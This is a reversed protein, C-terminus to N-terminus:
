RLRLLKTSLSLGPARVHAVYLGVRAVDGADSSGDWRFSHAGASLPGHYVSRVQRGAIDYIAVDAVEAQPLVLRLTAGTHFPNPSARLEGRGVDVIPENVATIGQSM